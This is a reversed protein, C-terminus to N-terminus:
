VYDLRLSDNGQRQPLSALRGPQARDDWVNMRILRARELDLDQLGAATTVGANCDRFTTSGYDALAFFETRPLNPMAPRELVWEATRGEVHIPGAAPPPQVVYSYPLSAGTTENKIFLNVTTASLGQLRAYVTHGAQVPVAPIRIKRAWWEWWAFLDPQAIGSREEVWHGTGLQPLSRSAPDHGDLGVWASSAFTGDNAGPAAPAPVNWRAEVLAFQGFGQPRVYGGSWNNSSEQTVPSTHLHRSRLPSAAFLAEITIEKPPFTLPPSMARLWNAYAKRALDQDPRPPLHYLALEDDDATVPDFGPDPFNWQVGKKLVEITIPDLVLLRPEPPALRDAGGVSMVM